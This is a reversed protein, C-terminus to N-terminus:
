AKRRFFGKKSEQIESYKAFIQELRDLAPKIKGDDFESISNSLDQVTEGVFIIAGRIETLLEAQRNQHQDLRTLMVKKLYDIEKKIRDELKNEYNILTSSFTNLNEKLDFDLLGISRELVDISRPLDGTIRGTLVKSLQDLFDKVERMNAADVRQREQVLIDLKSDIAVLVNGIDQLTGKGSV